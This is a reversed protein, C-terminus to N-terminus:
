DAQITKPIKHYLTTLFTPHPPLFLCLFVPYTKTPIKLLIVSRHIIHILSLFLFYDQFVIYSSRPTQPYM